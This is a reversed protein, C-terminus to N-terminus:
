EKGKKGEHEELFKFVKNLEDLVNPDLPSDWEEETFVRQNPKGVHEEM